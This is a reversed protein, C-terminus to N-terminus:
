RSGELGLWARNQYSCVCGASADPVLVIGGVPLANIWCGPRVGGFNELEPRNLDFYGLTASRFLMLHTSGSLQGCGYSRKLPFPRDEGTLLDWAGGEAYITRDNILPRTTYRAEHDWRRTGDAAHFVALRGGRESALKFRTPQYSMLLAQHRDSYALTTGYINDSNEWVTEGTSLDLALLKGTPHEAKPDGDARDGPFLPRDILFVKGGGVAVANHRISDDARYQWQVEGTIPNLAFLRTSETFLGAMNAKLYAWKPLHAENAASGLLRGNNYSLYGWTGPKGDPGAPCRFEALKEGSAADIKLCVGEHRVYLSGDGYCFNSGTASAGVLHDADYAQLIKPLPYRWLLRGNYADVACLGDLGEVFLRGEVFLPAPGRGHRQPMRHDIECFWLTRLPGQVLRDDSCLTNGADGYQHTWQGAGELAPRVRHELQGPPGLCVTGGYPRQLRQIEAAAPVAEGRVSRASVILNAFYKGYPLRDGELHHVMVRTGYLGAAELKKRAAAVQQPDDDVAYIFLDSRRALEYALAGDGCGLDLCYGERAQGRRLIEEAARAFRENDAYPSEEMPPRVQRVEAPKEAAFCYLTGTDTAALLCGDSAALAHVTGDVERQWVIKQQRGDAMALTGAGGAVVHQGAGILSAAAPAAVSWLPQLAVQRVLQGKRDPKEVETFRFAELKDKTSRVLGGPLAALMTSGVPGRSEGSAADFSLGANFFLEGIAMTPAGGSHGYRQLHYYLFKGTAREFAAPVARGTPVFLKDGSVVLYGQASVGSRANAGGHPQPMYIAGSDKNEWILRGGQADRAYLYIGESPWIGAAYYVVGEHIVPGGRLPWRSVMRGNGLIMDDAPGGRWRNLLAGDRLRLLYLWGDDSGVFLLGNHVAPAFRIPGGTAFQWRPQGSRLDLARVQGDVTSGFIVLGGAVVPHDARDFPLRDSGPWAPQPPANATFVWQLHLEAPLAESTYGRRASDFRDQPWDGVAPRLPLMAMMLLTWTGVLRRTYRNM